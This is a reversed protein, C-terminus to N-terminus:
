LPREMFYLGCSDLLLSFYRTMLGRHPEAGLSVSQSVTLRLTVKFKVTTPAGGPFYRFVDMDFNCRRCFLVKQVLPFKGLRVATRSQV